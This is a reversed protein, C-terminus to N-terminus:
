NVLLLQQNVLDGSYVHLPWNVYSCTCIDMYLDCTCTYGSVEGYLDLRSVKLGSTAFQPIRFEVQSPVCRPM